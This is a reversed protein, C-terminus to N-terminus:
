LARNLRILDECFEALGLVLANISGEFENFDLNELQLTDRFIVRKGSENIVCAGHVLQRNIQLLKKYHEASDNKIEYLVQELVLIPYECDIVMNCIGMEVNNVVVIQEQEDVISIDLSMNQAYDCILKFHDQM